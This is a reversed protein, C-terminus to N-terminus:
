PLPVGIVYTLMTALEPLGFLSLLAAGLEGAAADRDRSGRIRM